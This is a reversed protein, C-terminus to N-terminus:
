ISAEPRANIQDNVTRDIIVTGNVWSVLVMGGNVTNGRIIATGRIIAGWLRFYKFLRRGRVIAGM